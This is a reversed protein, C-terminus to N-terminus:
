ELLFHLFIPPFLKVICSDINLFLFHRPIAADHFIIKGLDGLQLNLMAAQGINFDYLLPLRLGLIITQNLNLLKQFTPERVLVYHQLFRSQYASILLLIQIITLKDRFTGLLQLILVLPKAM